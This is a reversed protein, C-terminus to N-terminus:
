LDVTKPKKMRVEVTQTKGGRNLQMKVTSQERKERVM